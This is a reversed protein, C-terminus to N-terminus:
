PSGKANCIIWILPAVFLLIAFVLGFWILIRHWLFSFLMLMTWTVDEGSPSKLKKRKILTRDVVLSTYDVNSHNPYGGLVSHYAQLLDKSASNEDRIRDLRLYCERHLTAKEGFKFGFVILSFVLVFISTVVSYEALYDIEPWKLSLVSAVVIITSLVSLMVHTILSYNNYRSEAAMRTKSTTWIRDKISEVSPDNEM